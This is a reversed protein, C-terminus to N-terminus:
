FGSSSDPSNYNYKHEDHCTECRGLPRDLADCQNCFHECCEDCEKTPVCEKCYHKQCGHCWSIYEIGDHDFCDDDFCFHALCRSCTYNQAGEYEEGVDRFMWREAGTSSCLMECKSCKFQFSSLYENYRDLFQNMEESINVRFKKPLYLLKLTRRNSGIISDLIPIVFSESMLPEPDLVPNEHMRVLSIDLQELVTSSRIINLCSGTINVCGALKLTKLNNSADICTLITTIHDDSLRAALSKDIDGFDLVTLQQQEGRAAGSIIANSTQTTSTGDQTVAIAFMVVSPTALYTAVNTLIGDPLDNIRINTTAATKRRKSSIVENTTSM